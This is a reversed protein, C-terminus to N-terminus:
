ASAPPVLLVSCPAHHALFSAFSGLVARPVVGRHSAAVALDCAERELFAVAEETPHGSLVVAQAGEVGDVLAALWTEAAAALAQPDNVLGGLASGVVVPWPPPAVVHVVSLRAGGGAIRVAEALGRQAADSDDVFCAVHTFPPTM